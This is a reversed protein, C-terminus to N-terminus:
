DPGHLRDVVATYCVMRGQGFQSRRITLRTDWVTCIEPGSQSGKPRDRRQHNNSINQQLAALSDQGLATRDAAGASPVILVDPESGPVPHVPFHIQFSVSGSLMPTQPGHLCGPPHIFPSHKITAQRTGSAWQWISTPIM